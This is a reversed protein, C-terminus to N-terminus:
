PRLCYPSLISYPCCLVYLFIVRGPQSLQCLTTGTAHYAVFGIDAHEYVLGLGYRRDVAKLVALTAATIEPGIGDGELVLISTM